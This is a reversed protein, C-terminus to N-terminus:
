HPLVNDDMSMQDELETAIEFETDCVCCIYGIGIAEKAELEKYCIDCQYFMGHEKAKHENLCQIDAFQKNCKDCDFHDDCFTEHTHGQGQSQIVERGCTDCALLLGDRSHTRWHRKFSQPQRFTKRASM